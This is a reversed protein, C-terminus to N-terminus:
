FDKSLVSKLSKLFGFIYGGEQSLHIWIWERLSNLNTASRIHLSYPFLRQYPNISHAMIKVTFSNINSWFSANYLILMNRVYIIGGELKQWRRALNLNIKKIPSLKYLQWIPFSEILISWSTIKKLRHFVPRSILNEFRTRFDQGDMGWGVGGGGRFSVGLVCWCLTYIFVAKWICTLFKHM